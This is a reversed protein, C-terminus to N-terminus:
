SINKRKVWNFADKPCSKLCDGCGICHKSKMVPEINFDIGMPCAQACLGCNNCVELNKGIAHISIPVFFSTLAGYPCVYRCFGRKVRLSLILWCLLFLITIIPVPIKWAACIWFAPCAITCVLTGRVITGLVLLMLVGISFIRMRENLWHPIRKSSIHLKAGIDGIFEFLTGLPCIWGCFIRPYFLTMVIGAIGLIMGCIYFFGVGARLVLIPVEVVTWPCINHAGTFGWLLWVTILMAAAFVLQMISRFINKFFFRRLNYQTM